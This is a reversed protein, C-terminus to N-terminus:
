EGLKAEALAQKILHYPFGQRALYAILKQRDQYQALKAKRLIIEQIQELESAEDIGDLIESIVDQSIRKKFLESALQRKSRPRSLARWDVWQRAFKADDVLGASTVKKVLVSILENGYGKRQLYDEIEWQSRPRIALLRLVRDYAKGFVASKKLRKLETPTLDQDKKLGSKVLEDGSLSFTYKGDVYISYRDKRKVQQKIDTIKM